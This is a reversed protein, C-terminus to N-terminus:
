VCVAVKLIGRLAPYKLKACNQMQLDGNGKLNMNGVITAPRHDTLKGSLINM